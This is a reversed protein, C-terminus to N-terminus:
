VSYELNAKKWRETKSGIMLVPIINLVLIYMVSEFMFYILLALLGSIVAPNKIRKVGTFYIYLFLVLVVWGYRTVLLLYQNDITYGIKDEDDNSQYNDSNGIINQYAGDSVRLNWLYPRRSLIENVPSKYDQGYNVAVYPTLVIAFVAIIPIIMRAIKLMRVNLFAYFILFLSVCIYGTLSLTLMFLITAIIFMLLAYLRREKREAFIFAGNIVIVMFYLLPSNSNQFGLSNANSGFISAVSYSKDIVERGIDPTFIGIIIVLIFFISSSVFLRKALVKFDTDAFLLFLLFPILLWSQNTLVTFLIVCLLTAIFGFRSHQYVSYVKSLNLLLNIVVIIFFLWLVMNAVLNVDFGLVNFEQRFLSLYYYFCLIVVSFNRMWSYRFTTELQKKM